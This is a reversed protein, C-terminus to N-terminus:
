AHDYARPRHMWALAAAALAISVDRFLIDFQPGNLVVIAVLVIVALVSPIWPRRGFVIWLAIILELLGFAHLMFETGPLFAPFYGLWSDPDSIAAIPPYLFSFAIAVRLLLEPAPLRFPNLM